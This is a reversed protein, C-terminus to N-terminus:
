VNGGLSTIANTLTAIKSDIYLKTDAVYKLDVTPKVNNSSDIHTGGKYTRLAKIQNYVTQQESTYPDIVENELQYQLKIPNEALWAVFEEM